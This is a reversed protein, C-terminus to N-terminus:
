PKVPTFKVKFSVRVTGVDPPVRSRASSVASELCASLGPLPAAGVKVNRARGAEDIVLEVSVKAAANKGAKKAATKYCGRFKSEARDIARRANSRPLSGRSKFGTVRATADLPAAKEVPPDPKREPPPAPPPVLDNGLPLTPPPARKPVPEKDPESDAAETTPEPKPAPESARSPKPKRRRRPRDREEKPEGAEPASPPPEAEPEEPSDASPESTIPTASDAPVPKTPEPAGRSAAPARETASVRPQETDGGGRLLLFGVVAAAPVGFALGLWMGKRGRHEGAPAAAEEDGETPQEDGEEPVPTALM